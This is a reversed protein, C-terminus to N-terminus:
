KAGKSLEEQLNFNRKAEERGYPDTLQIYNVLKDSLRGAEDLAAYARGDEFDQKIIRLSRLVEDEAEYVKYAKEKATEDM